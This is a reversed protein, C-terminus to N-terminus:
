RKILKLTAQRAGQQVQLLYMGAPQQSLDLHMQGPEREPQVMVRQGDARFLGVQLGPWDQQWTLTFHGASPNPSVTLQAELMDSLHTLTVPVCRSQAQCGDPGTIVVAYTGSATATYFPTTAGAIPSGDACDIWQYSVNSASSLLTSNVQSVATDLAPRVTLSTTIVSDCGEATLFSDVYVGSSTQFTGGLQVSDGNCIALSDTLDYTPLFGLVTAILSDCGRVNTLTDIYTGPTSRFTGAILLSDGECIMAPTDVRVVFTAGFSAIPTLYTVTTDFISGPQGDEGGSVSGNPGGAGGSVNLTATNLYSAEYFVKIRGGGGGGGDDNATSTGISGVGGAASLTGTLTVADGRLLLGGGAGGGGGQGGGPQEALDGDVVISGSM